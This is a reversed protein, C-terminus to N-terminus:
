NTMRWEGLGAGGDDDDDFGDNNAIAKEQETLSLNSADAGALTSADGIPAPTQFMSDEINSAERM